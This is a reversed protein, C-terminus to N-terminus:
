RREDLSMGEMLKMEIATRNIAESVNMREYGGERERERERACWTKVDRKKIMKSIDEEIATM